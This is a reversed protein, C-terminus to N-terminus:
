SFIYGSTCIRVNGVYRCWCLAGVYTLTAFVDAGEGLCWDQGSVSHKEQMKIMTNVTVDIAGYYFVKRSESPICDVVGRVMMGLTYLWLKRRLLM